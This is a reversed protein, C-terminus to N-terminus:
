HNLIGEYSLKTMIPCTWSCGKCLTQKDQKYAQTIGKWNGYPDLLNYVDFKPVERGKIRLCLRLLGDSDITINNMDNELKCDLEAPLIDYIKQLLTDKMHIKYNSNILRDFIKKTSETKKVLQHRSTISSFDYYNNKAIDLVTIDSTIGEESLIKVTEELYPINDNDVTIEAVPDHVMKEKILYKLYEFGIHSKYLEHNINDVCNLWFGPDISATFGKVVGVEEFFIKMREKLTCNSIITYHADKCNLHKVIGSLNDYLFPEGGFLIFFINPNHSVLRNIVDIWYELSREHEYYYKSNKYERPAIMYDTDGSIRCYECKLNCKRTLILSAINIM